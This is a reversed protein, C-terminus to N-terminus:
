TNQQFNRWAYIILIFVLLALFFLIWCNNDGGNEEGVVPYTRDPNQLEGSQLVDNDSCEVGGSAGSFTVCVKLVRPDNVYLKEVGALDTDIYFNVFECRPEYPRPVGRIIFGDLVLSDLRGNLKHWTATVSDPLDILEPRTAYNGGSLDRFVLSPRTEQGEGENCIRMSFFVRYKGNKLDNIKTVFLNNPDHSVLVPILRFSVGKIYETQTDEFEPDGITVALSQGLNVSVDPAFLSMIEARVNELATGSLPTDGLEFSAFIANGKPVKDKPFDETLLVPFMRMENLHTILTTDINGARYDYELCSLFKSSLQSLVGYNYKSRFEENFTTDYNTEFGREPRYYAPIELGDPKALKTPTFVGEDWTSNYFFLTRTINDSKLHSLAFVTPYAKRIEHNHDIDARKSDPDPLRVPNDSSPSDPTGGTVQLKIRAAKPREDNHYRETSYVAPSYTGLKAYTHEVRHSAVDMHSVDNEFKQYNGDGFVWFSKYWGCVKCESNRCDNNPVTIKADDFLFTFKANNRSVTGGPSGKLGLENGRVDPTNPLRQSVVIEQGDDEYVKNPPCNQAYLFCPACFLIAAMVFQMMTKM